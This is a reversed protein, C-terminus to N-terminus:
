YGRCLWTGAICWWGRGGAHVAMYCLQADWLEVGGCGHEQKADGDEGEAYDGGGGAHVAMYCLQADWLEVGGWGHEQKADGDVGEAYGYLLLQDDFRM